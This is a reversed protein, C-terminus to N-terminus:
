RSCAWAQVHDGDRDVAEVVVCNAGVVRTVVYGDEGLKALYRDAWTYRNWAYMLSLAAFAIWMASEIRRAM